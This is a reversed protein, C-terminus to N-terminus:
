SKSDCDPPRSRLISVPLKIWHLPAIATEKKIDKAWAHICDCLNIEATAELASFRKACSSHV